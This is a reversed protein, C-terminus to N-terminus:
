GFIAIYADDKEQVSLGLEQASLFFAARVRESTQGIKTGSALKNFAWEAQMSGTSLEALRSGFVDIVKQHPNM